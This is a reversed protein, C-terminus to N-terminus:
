PLLHFFTRMCVFLIIRKWYKFCNKILNFFKILICTIISTWKNFSFTWQSLKHLHLSFSGRNCMHLIRFFYKRMAWKIVYKYAATFTANSTRDLPMVCLPIGSWCPTDPFTDYSIVLYIIKINNFLCRPKSSVRYIQGM